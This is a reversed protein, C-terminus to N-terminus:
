LMISIKAFLLWSTLTEVENAPVLFQVTSIDKASLPRRITMFQKKKLPALFLNDEIKM